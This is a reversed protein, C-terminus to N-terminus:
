PASARPSPASRAEDEASRPTGTQSRRRHAGRPRPAGRHRPNARRARNQRAQKTSPSCDSPLAPPTRDPPAVKGRTVAGNVAPRNAGRHACDCASRYGGGRARAPERDLERSGRQDPAPRQRQGPRTADSLRYCDTRAPARDSHPGAVATGTRSREAAPAAESRRLTALAATADDRERMLQSAASRAENLEASLAARAPEVNCSRQLLQRTRAARRTVNTPPAGPM